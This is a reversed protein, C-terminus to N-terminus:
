KPCFNEPVAMMAPYYRFDKLYPDVIRCLISNDDLVCRETGFSKFNDSGGVIIFQGNQIFVSHSFRAQKLEGLKQWKKTGTNFRGIVNQDKRNSLGGFIYFSDDLAIIAYCNISTM